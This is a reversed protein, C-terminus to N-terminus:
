LCGGHNLQLKVHRKQSVPFIQCFPPVDKPKVKMKCVYEKCDRKCEKPIVPKSVSVPVSDQRLTMVTVAKKTLTVLFITTTAEKIMGTGLM